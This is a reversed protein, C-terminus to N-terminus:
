EDFAKKGEESDGLERKKIHALIFLEMGEKEEQPPEFSWEKQIVELSSKMKKALLEPTEASLEFTHHFDSSLDQNLTYGAKEYLNPLLPMNNGTDYVDLVLRPSEGETHLYRLRTGSEKGTFFDHYALFTNGFSDPPDVDGQKLQETWFDFMNNAQEKNDAQYWFGISPRYWDPGSFPNGGDPLITLITNKQRATATLMPAIQSHKDNLHIDLYSNRGFHCGCTEIKKQYCTLLLQELSSSGEAWIKIVDEIEAQKIEEEM